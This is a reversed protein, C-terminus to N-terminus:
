FSAQLLTLGGVKSRMKLTIKIIRPVRYKWVFKIILKDIEVSMTVPFPYLM